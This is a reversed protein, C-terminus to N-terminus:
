VGCRSSHDLGDPGVTCATGPSCRTSISRSVTKMKREPLPGHFRLARGVQVHALRPLPIDRVQRTGAQSGSGSQLVEDSLEIRFVVDDQVALLAHAGHPCQFAQAGGAEPIQVAQGTPDVAPPGVDIVRQGGVPQTLLGSQAADSSRSGASNTPWCRWEQPSHLRDCYM